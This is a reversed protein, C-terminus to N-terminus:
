QKPVVSCLRYSIHQKYQYYDDAWMKYLMRISLQRIRDHIENACEHPYGNASRSQVIPIAVQLIVVKQM